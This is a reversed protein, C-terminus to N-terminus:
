RTGSSVAVSGSGTSQAQVLRLDLQLTVIMAAVLFLSALTHVQTTQSHTSM